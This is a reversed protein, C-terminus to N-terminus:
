YGMEGGGMGSMGMDDPPKDGSKEDIKGLNDYKEVEKWDFPLYKRKLYELPIGFEKLSNILRSIVEIHETERELELMTPPPFTAKVGIPLPEGYVLRYIKSFLSNLPKSLRTQYSVITRAFLANEFSLASKNSLNEELNLYSPPVELSAVLNDRFLKLEDAIDRLNIPNPITDFEVYRKGKNQPLYYDEYSTVMSPISGINGMTDLSFKRKKHAEKIEEILSRVNRPIGTEVYIVRKDSSDSVRKIALATEFAILLKASFSTKFFIGEGYPFFRRTNIGFHQMRDPPVYRIIFRLNRESDFDKIARTLLTMIEKKDVTLDKNGIHKKITDIVDSYIKDVGVFDRFRQTLMGTHITNSSSCGMSGTSRGPALMNSGFVGDSPRPLILYGLNLKYRKTQLKIVFRPDHLILRLQGIDIKENEKKASAEVIVPTVDIKRVDEIVRGNKGEMYVPYEIPIPEIMSIEQEVLQENLTGDHNFFNKPLRTGGNESEMLLSQTIPVDEDMYDCVEVFQDGLKLTEYVIEHLYEELNLTKNISRIRSLSVNSRDSTKAEELFNIVDKTIKDPALTEDAIVKLARACYPIFDCIEEANAYRVLRDFIDYSMFVDSSVNQFTDNSIVSSMTKRVLEAYNMSNKNIITDEVRNLIVDIQDLVKAKSAPVVKDRVKSFSSQFEKSKSDAM